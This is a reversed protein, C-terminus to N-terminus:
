KRHKARKAEEDFFIKMLAKVLFPGKDRMKELDEKDLWIGSCLLCQEISVHTFNLVELEVGCKPCRNYCLKRTEEFHKQELEKKKQEVLDQDRGQFYIDEPTIKKVPRGFEDYEIDEMKVPDAEVVYKDFLHEHKGGNKTEKDKKDPGSMVNEQTISEQMYKNNWPYIEESIM